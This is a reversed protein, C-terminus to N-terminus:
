FLKKRFYLALVVFYLLYTVAHAMVAGEAGYNTILCYGSTYMVAFSLVEFAIFQKVMRRAFFEQALIQSCVKFLDGTLQWIFFGAMPLFADSLTIKIVLSRLLYVMVLGLAFVPVVVKYYSHWTARIETQTKARALQPLFYVTQLTTAFMLYFSSIRNIGEWYGAQDTDSINIIRNRLTIYIATGLLATVLSMISYSSLGRLMERSFSSISIGSFGGTARYLPYVSLVFVIVPSLVLGWLAGNTHLYWIFVASMSVGLLNGFINIYIVRNYKGLGNLMATFVLSGTYLPLAAALARFVWAYEKTGNFVWQSWLVAPLGIGLGCIVIGAFVTIFVTTLVKKLKEAEDQFEATYKIIGNQLGLTSFTDVSTLFNRFSGTIAMGAPGLFAAIMKGALFGGLM